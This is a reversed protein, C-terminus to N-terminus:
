LAVLLTRSQPLRPKLARLLTDFIYRTCVGTNVGTHSESRNSRRGIVIRSPYLSVGFFLVDVRVRVGLRICVCCVARPVLANAGKRTVSYLYIMSGMLGSWPTWHDRTNCMVCTFFVTCRTAGHHRIDFTVDTYLTKSSM